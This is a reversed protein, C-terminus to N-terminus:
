SRARQQVAVNRVMQLEVRRFVGDRQL